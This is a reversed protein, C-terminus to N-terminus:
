YRWNYYNKSSDYNPRYYYPSTYSDRRYETADFTRMKGFSFGGGYNYSTDQNANNTTLRNNQTNYLISESAGIYKETLSTTITHRLNNKSKSTFFGGKNTLIHSFDDVNTFQREYLPGRYDYAYSSSDENSSYYNANSRQNFNENPFQSYGPSERYSVTSSPVTYSSRYSPYQNYSNPYNFSSASVNALMIILFIMTILINRTKNM